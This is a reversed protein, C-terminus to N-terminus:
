VGRPVLPHHAAETWIPRRASGLFAPTASGGRELVVHDCRGLVRGRRARDRPSAPVVAYVRHGTRLDRGRLIRRDRLPDDHPGLRFNAAKGCPKSRYSAPRFEARGAIGFQIPLTSSTMYELRM